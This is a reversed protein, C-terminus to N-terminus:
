FADWDPKIDHIYYYLDHVNGKYDRALDPIIAAKQFGLNELASIAARQNSLVEAMVKEIKMINAVELLDKIMNTGLGLGRCKSCTLIRIKAIARSWGYSRHHLTANGIISGEATEAVVPFVNSLNINKCWNEVVYYDKVNDKLLMLDDETVSTLFFQYLKDIDDEKLVRLTAISGDKLVVRYPYRELVAKTM